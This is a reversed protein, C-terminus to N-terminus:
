LMFGHRIRSFHCATAHLLCLLTQHKGLWSPLLVNISLVLQLLTISLVLQLLPRFRKVRLACWAAGGAAGGLSREADSDPPDTRQCVARGKLDEAVAGRLQHTAQGTISLSVCWIEMTIIQSATDAEHNQM